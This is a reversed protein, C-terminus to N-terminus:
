ISITEWVRFKRTLSELTQPTVYSPPEFRIYRRAFAMFAAVGAVSIAGIPVHGMVKKAGRQLFSWFDLKNDTPPPPSYLACDRRTPTLAAEVPLIDGRRT